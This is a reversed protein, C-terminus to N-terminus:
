FGSAGTEQAASLCTGRRPARRGPSAPVPLPTWAAIIRAASRAAAPDLGPFLKRAQAAAAVDGGTQMAARIAASEAETVVFM